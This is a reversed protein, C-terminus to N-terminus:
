IVVFTSNDPPSETLAVVTFRGRGAVLSYDSISTAQGALALNTFIVVRGNYHDATAETITDSDFQTTTAATGTDDTIGEVIVSASRELGQASGIVNNIRVIDAGAEGTANIDLANAPTTARVLQANGFTGSNVVAFSDGTQATHGTLATVTNVLNTTTASLNVATAQGGINAWDLGAEGTASVDLANAPTTSRVLVANGFTGSNVVAFSDGTQNTHGTLTTVTPIVNGTGAYGTGDFFSEANNAAPADDSISNVDVEPKLSTASTTVAQGLWSGVDIRGTTVTVSLDSFNTPASAALFADDTGRVDINTTTTDVLVVGQVKNTAPDYGEDAFDKLDTASQITGGLAVANADVQGNAPQNIQGVGTGRTYLGGAGEAAVNPLATMGGRVSDRLDMDTIDVEKPRMLTNNTGEAVLQITVQDVGTAVAADPIDLRYLGPMNTDDVLIFGGDTHAAGASALTVLTFDTRAAGQRAYSASGGTEIDSFLLGTTPEGTNTGSVDDVFYVYVTVDITGATVIM